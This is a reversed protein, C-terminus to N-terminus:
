GEERSRVEATEPKMAYGHTCRTAYCSITELARERKIRKGCEKCCHGFPLRLPSRQVVRQAGPLCTMCAAYVAATLWGNAV